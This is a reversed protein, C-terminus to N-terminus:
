ATIHMISVQKPKLQDASDAPFNEVKSSQCGEAPTSEPSPSNSSESMNDENEELASKPSGNGNQEVHATSCVPKNGGIYNEDSHFERALHCDRVPDIDDM